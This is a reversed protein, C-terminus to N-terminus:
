GGRHRGIKSYTRVRRLADKQKYNLGKNIEVFAEFNAFTHDLLDVLEQDTLNGHDDFSQLSHGLMCESNPLPRAGVEPSEIIHRLMQQARSTGLTGYSAGMILVPKEQFPHVQYSLWEIANMLVAPVGHDYEPTSIIIGDAATIKKAMQQAREPISHDPTKYFVPLGAIDLAEIEAVKAFRHQIFRILKKNTSGKRNSGAIAIYHKM